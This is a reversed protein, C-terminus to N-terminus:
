ADREHQQGRTARGASRCGILNSREVPQQAHPVHRRCVGYADAEGPAVGRAVRWRADQKEQVVLHVVETLWWGFSSIDNSAKVVFGPATFAIPNTCPSRLAIAGPLRMSELMVGVRTSSGVPAISSTVPAAPPCVDDGANGVLDNRQEVEVSRQALGHSRRLKVKLILRVREDDFPNRPRVGGRREHGRQPM